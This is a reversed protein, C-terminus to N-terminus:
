IYVFLVHECNLYFIPASRGLLRTVKFNIYKMLLINFLIFYFRASASEVLGRKVEKKEKKM